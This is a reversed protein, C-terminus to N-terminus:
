PKKAEQQRKQDFRVSPPGNSIEVTAVSMRYKGLDGRHVILRPFDGGGQDIVIELRDFRPKKPWPFRVYKGDYWGRPRVLLEHVTLTNGSKLMCNVLEEADVGAGWEHEPYPYELWQWYYHIHVAKPTIPKSTAKEVFRLELSPVQYPDGYILPAGKTSDISQSLTCTSEGTQFAVVDRLQSVAANMGSLISATLILLRVKMQSEM